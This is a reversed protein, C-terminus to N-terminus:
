VLGVFLLIKGIRDVYVICGREVWGSLMVMYDLTGRNVIDGVPDWRLLFELKPDSGNNVWGPSCWEFIEFFELTFFNSEIM